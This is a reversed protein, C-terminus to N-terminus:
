PIFVRFIRKLKSLFSRQISPPHIDIDRGWLVLGASVGFSLDELEISFEEPYGILCPLKLERKVLEKIKPIKAGGGTLVIGAPLLNAKSIEKLEKKVLDFIEVLRAEIIEVLKKRSFVLPATEEQRPLKVMDRKEITEALASGFELKITEALNTEVQLGIAIDNTINASGIPLVALHLLDGEEFVALSTTGAGIDVVAVGLEKQQPTLVARGAALPSIVVGNIEIGAELVAQTLSKIYPSFGGLILTEVELKLGRLGLPDKINEQGDIIFYRPVLQLIEKNQPLSFAQATIMVRDIDEQSILQDARSVVVSGRNKSLFIHNGNISIYADAIRQQLSNEADQVIRKINKSVEEISIVVGKRVGFCPLQGSYLIELKPEAPKKLVILIKTQSTGIDIGTIIHNKSM